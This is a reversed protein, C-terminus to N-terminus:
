AHHFQKLVVDADGPDAATGRAGGGHAGGFEFDGVDDLAAGIFVDGESLEGGGKVEGGGFAAVEAVVLDVDAGEAPGGDADGGGIGHGDGEGGGVVDGGAGATAAGDPFDAFM